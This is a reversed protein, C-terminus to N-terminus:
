LIIISTPLLEVGSPPYLPAARTLSILAACVCECVYYVGYFSVVIVLPAQRYTLNGSRAAMLSTILKTHVPACEPNYTYAASGDLM